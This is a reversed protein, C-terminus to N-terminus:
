LLLYSQQTFFTYINKNAISEYFSFDPEKDMDEVGMILQSSTGVHVRKSGSNYYLSICDGHKVNYYIYLKSRVERDGFMVKRIAHSHSFCFCFLHYRGEYWLSRLTEGIPTGDLLYSRAAVRSAHNSSNADIATANIVYWGKDGYGQSTFNNCDRLYLKEIPIRDFGLSTRASIGDITKGLEEKRHKPLRVFIGDTNACVVEYGEKLLEDIMQTLLVQGNVVVQLFARQDYFISGVQRMKGFVSNLAIKYSYREMSEKPLQKRHRLMEAYYYLFKADCGHPLLSHNKILSPYYSTM